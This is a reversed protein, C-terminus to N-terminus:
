TWKQNKQSIQGKAIKHFNQYWNKTKVQAVTFRLEKRFINASKLCPNLKTKGDVQSIWSQLHNHGEKCGVM